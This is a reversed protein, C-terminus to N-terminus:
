GGMIWGSKVRMSDIWYAPDSIGFASSHAWVVKNQFRVFPAAISLSFRTASLKSVFSEGNPSVVSFVSRNPSTTYASTLFLRTHAVGFGQCDGPNAPCHLAHSGDPRLEMVATKVSSSTDFRVICLHKDDLEFGSIIQWTTQSGTYPNPVHSQVWTILDSSKFVAKSGYVFYESGVKVIRKTVVSTNAAVLPLAASIATPTGGTLPMRYVIRNTGYYYLLGDFVHVADPRSASPATYLATVVSTGVVWKYIISTNATTLGVFYVNGEDDFTIGSATMGSTSVTAHTTLSMDANMSFLMIGSVPAAGVFFPKEHFESYVATQPASILVPETGVIPYFSFSQM